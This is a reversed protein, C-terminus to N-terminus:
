EGYAPRGRRAYPSAWSKAAPAQRANAQGSDPQSGMGYGSGAGQDATGQSPAYTLGDPLGRPPPAAPIVAECTTLTSCSWRWGAPQSLMTGGREFRCECAQEAMCARQGARAPTCAPPLPQAWSGAGPLLPLVGLLGLWAARSRPLRM